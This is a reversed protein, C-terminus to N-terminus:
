LSRGPARAFGPPAAGPAAGSGTDPAAGLAAGSGTDPAAGAAAEWGEARAVEALTAFPRAPIGHARCYDLLDDKAYIRDAAGAACRDSYGDGIVIRRAYRGSARAAELAAGKCNGCRGCGTPAGAAARAVRGGSMAVEPGGSAFEPVLAGDVFRLRNATFPVDLGAAALLREIYFTLGDSAVLVHHGAGRAASVFAAADAVLAFGSVFTLAAEPDVRAGDCERALCERASIRGAMWDAILADWATRDATFRRFFRNGVDAAALTGDFDVLIFDSAPPV